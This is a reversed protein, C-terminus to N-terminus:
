FLWGLAASWQSTETEADNSREQRDVKLVVNPHPKAAVGATVITRAYAPSESGGPVDDQTDYVEWRAYPQLGWRTGPWLRPALDFAAEVYAGWFREGLRASGALGLADSLAGADSLTGNVWLGRLDLGRWQARAHADVVTVRPSAEEGGQAVNGTWASVGLTAADLQWDARGAFAPHTLRSRSGHQRGGRIASSASFGSGDLGELVYARYSLGNGFSGFLGAGNAAWTSPVINREVDPRRAGLFVPPEHWENVLGVPVLLKGARVGVQPTVVFDVYAFEVIAEGSLEASGEGTGPDVEVEGEDLVGVHEWEVESNFVLDDTFKHGIYFVTRLLDLRPRSGNPTGNERERDFSEFVMEGYGGISLGAPTGYVKSAAPAFGFRSVPGAAPSTDAVAGTRLREIEALAADLKKEVEGLRQETTQASTVGAVLCLAILAALHLLCRRLM